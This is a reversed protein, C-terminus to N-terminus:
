INPVSYVQKEPVSYLVPQESSSSILAATLERGYVCGTVFGTAFAHKQLGLCASHGFYVHESGPWLSAWPGVTKLKTATYGGDSGPM